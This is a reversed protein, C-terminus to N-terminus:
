NQKQFNSLRWLTCFLLVSNLVVLPIQTVLGYLYESPEPFFFHPIMRLNMSLALLLPSSMELWRRTVFCRVLVIGGYVIFVPFFRLLIADFGTAVHEYAPRDIYEQWDYKIAHILQFISLSFFLGEICDWATQSIQLRAKTSMM